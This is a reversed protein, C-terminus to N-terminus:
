TYLLCTDLVDQSLMCVSRDSGQGTLVALGVPGVDGDGPQDGPKLDLAGLLPVEPCDSRHLVEIARDLAEEEGRRVHSDRGHEAVVNHAYHAPAQVTTILCRCDEGLLEGQRVDLVPGSPGHYHGQGQGPGGVVHRLPDPSDQALM